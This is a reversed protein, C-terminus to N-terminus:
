NELSNIAVKSEILTVKSRLESIEVDQVKNHTDLEVFKNNTRDLKEDHVAMQTSLNGVKEILADFKVMAQRHMISVLYGIVALALSLMGVVLAMDEPRLKMMRM